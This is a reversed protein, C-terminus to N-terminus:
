EKDGFQCKERVDVEFGLYSWDILLQNGPFNQWHVEELKVLDGTALFTNRNDFMETLFQKGNEITILM